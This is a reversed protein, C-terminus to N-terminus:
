RTRAHGLLVPAEEVEIAGGPAFADPPEAVCTRLWVELAIITWIALGGVPGGPGQDLIQQLAVRNFLGQEILEGGLLMSRFRRRVQPETLWPEIPGRLGTKPRTVLRPPLHSCLLAKPIRKTALPDVHVAPPLSMAWEMLTDDLFPSRAELGHAMTMADVKLLLDDPLYHEFDWLMAGHLASMPSLRELTAAVFRMPGGEDLGVTRRFAGTYCRRKTEDDLYSAAQLIARALTQLEGDWSRDLAAFEMYRTYGGFLEDGGDGTLSVKMRRRAARALEWFPLFSPDGCPTGTHWAIAALQSLVQRTVLVREVGLGLKAGVRRAEVSEDWGREDYGVSMCGPRHGMGVSLAAITSSDVGGSLFLGVPVDAAHHVDVARQLLRGYPELHEEASGKSRPTPRPPTWYRELRVSGAGNVQLLSGPPLKRIHRFGTRPHPVYQFTLYHDLAVLDLERPVSPDAALANLESAFWIGRGDLHYYLPKQGARDRALMLVRNSGDWVALAFMGHLQPIAALGLWAYLHPLVESDSTSRFRVGRAELRTRLQPANYIEGNVVAVLRGDASLFPQRGAHSLDLIALRRSGLAVDGDLFIGADDPGRHRLLRLGRQLVGLEVPERDGFRYAGLIGCM